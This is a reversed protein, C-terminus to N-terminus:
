QLLILQDADGVERRDKVLTWTFVHMQMPVAVVGRQGFTIERRSDPGADRRFRDVEIADIAHGIPELRQSWRWARIM